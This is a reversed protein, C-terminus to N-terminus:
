NRTHTYIIWCIVATLVVIGILVWIEWPLERLLDLSVKVNGLNRM